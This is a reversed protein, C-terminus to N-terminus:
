RDSSAMPMRSWPTTPIAGCFAGCSESPLLSSPSTNASAPAGTFGFSRASTWKRRPSASRLPLSPPAKSFAGEMALSAGLSPASSGLMEWIAEHGSECGPTAYAYHTLLWGLARDADSRDRSVPSAVFVVGEILEALKLEPLADWRRLFETRDMKEGTTLTAPEVLPSVM